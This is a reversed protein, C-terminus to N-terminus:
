GEGSYSCGESDGDRGRSLVIRSLGPIQGNLQNWIWRTTNELTPFALGEIDNLYRHDLRSRVETLPKDIEYFNHSWGFQPHPEGQMIVQVKFSHGHLDEYPLSRHAAEFTFEKFTEL